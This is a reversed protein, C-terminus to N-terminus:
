TKLMYDDLISESLDPVTLDVDAYTKDIFERIETRDNNDHWYVKITTSMHRDENRHGCNASVQLQDVKGNICTSIFTHRLDHLRIEPHPELGKIERLKNCRKQLDDYRKSVKGPRPLEGSLINLKTRYVYDEPSPEAGLLETQQEKVKLLLTALTDPLAAYRQRREFRTKGNEKGNKPVKIVTKSGAQMRQQRVDILKNEFDIDKWQLGCLEGRRLGALAPIALLCFVSYDKEFHTVYWLIYKVQEITLITAEYKELEGIDADTVVNETVGYKKGKKMFKWFDNLHSKYKQISNNGLATTYIENPSRCWEFFEEIALTDIKRVDTDGFYAIMRREQNQKQATYAAGWDKSYRADYDAIAQRFTVKGATKSVKQISKTKNNEGQYAKAEKLTDFIKQTKCQKLVIQGTKKDLKPQRGLDIIALYKGDKIRQKIGPYDTAKYEDKRAMSYFGGLAQGLVVMTVCTTKQYNLQINTAMYYCFLAQFELM